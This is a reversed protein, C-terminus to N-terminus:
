GSGSNKLLLQQAKRYEAPGVAFRKKFARDFSSSHRYGMRSTVEKIRLETSKLLRAAAQLRCEVLYDNVRSGTQAKFLHQLRSTSLNVLRGLERVDKAPYRELIEMIKEIRRDKPPSPSM